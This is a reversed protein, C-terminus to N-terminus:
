RDVTDCLEKAGKASKATLDIRSNPILFLLTM